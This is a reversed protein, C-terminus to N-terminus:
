TSANTGRKQAQYLKAFRLGFQVLNKYGFIQVIEQLQIIAFLSAGSLIVIKKCFQPMPRSSFRAIRLAASRSWCRLCFRGALASRM